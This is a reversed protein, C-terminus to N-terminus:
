LKRTWPGEKAALQTEDGCSYRITWPNKLQTGLTAVQTLYSINRLLNISRILSYALLHLM